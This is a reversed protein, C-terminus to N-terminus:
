LCQVVGVDLARDIEKDLCGPRTPGPASVVVSRCRVDRVKGQAESRALLEGGAPCIALRRQECDVDPRLACAFLFVDRGDALTYGWFVLENGVRGNSDTARAGDLMPVLREVPETFVSDPGQRVDMTREQAITPAAVWTLAVAAFAGIRRSGQQRSARDRM